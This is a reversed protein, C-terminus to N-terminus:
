NSPERIFGGTKDIYGVVYHPGYDTYVHVRALGNSFDYARVFVPEIVIEGQKNIFGFKGTPWDGVMFIALGESFSSASDFVPEIVFEGDKNIFGYKGDAWVGVMVSALGESFEHASGYQPEIVCEGTINIFGVKATPWEGTCITAMGESFCGSAGLEPELVIEGSHNIYVKKGDINVSALGESFDRAYQFLIDFVIEGTTDIYHFEMLDYDGVVAFGESFPQAVEYQPEVVFEGKMNIFGTKGDVKVTAFGESFYGLQHNFDFRLVVEGETNIYCEDAFPAGRGVAVIALGERFDTASHFQPEIAIEGNRDIYGWLRGKLFPFLPERNQQIASTTEPEEASKTSSYSHGAFYLIVTASLVLVVAITRM